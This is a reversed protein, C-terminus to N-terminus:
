KMWIWHSKLKLSPLPPSANLCPQCHSWWWRWVTAGMSTCERRTSFKKNAESAFRDKVKQLRVWIKQSRPSTVKSLVASCQSLLLLFYGKGILLVRVRVKIHHSKISITAPESSGWLATCVPYSATGASWSPNHSCPNEWYHPPNGAHKVPIRCPALWQCYTYSADSVRVQINGFQEM